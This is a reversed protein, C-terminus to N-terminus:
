CRFIFPKTICLVLQMDLPQSQPLTERTKDDEDYAIFDASYARSNFKHQDANHGILLHFPSLSIYFSFLSQFLFHAPSALCFGRRPPTSPPSLSTRPLRISHACPDLFPLAEHGSVPALQGM